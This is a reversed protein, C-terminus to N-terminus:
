PGAIIPLFQGFPQYVRHDRILTVTNAYPNSVIVQLTLPNVGIGRPWGEGVPLTSVWGGVDADYVFVENDATSSVFVHNTTTNVAVAGLGAARPPALAGVVQNAHGHITVLQGGALAVYVLNTIHNVAVGHPEALPDTAFLDITERVSQTRADVVAVAGITAPVNGRLAVYVRGTVANVALQGPRSGVPIELGVALADGDIVSVSDAASNAVYVKNAPAFV